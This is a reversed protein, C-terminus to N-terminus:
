RGVFGARPGTASTIQNWDALPQSPLALGASTTRRTLGPFHRIDQMCRIAINRRYIVALLAMWSPSCNSKKTQYM